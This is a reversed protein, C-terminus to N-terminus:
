NLRMILVEVERKEFDALNGNALVNNFQEIAKNKATTDGQKSLYYYAMGKAIALRPNNIKEDVLNYFSLAKNCVDSNKPTLYKNCKSKKVYMNYLNVKTVLVLSDNPYTKVLRESVETATKYDSESLGSAQSLVSGLAISDKPTLQAFLLTPLLIFLLLTKM